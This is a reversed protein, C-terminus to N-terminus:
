PLRAFWFMSALAALAALVLGFGIFRASVDQVETRYGISSGIDAYATRL